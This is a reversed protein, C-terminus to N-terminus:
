KKVKTNRLEEKYIDILLENEYSLDSSSVFFPKKAIIELKGRKYSGKIVIPIIPAKAEYGLKVAGIKFPAVVDDTKNFTGEPFIGLVMDNDLVKRGLILPTKDKIRRNVPIVGAGKMIPKLLGKFLSDKALFHVCRKTTIGMSMFDLNNTHNAVLIVKGLKPINEMGTIKPNYRLRMYISFVPRLIKYLLRDKM